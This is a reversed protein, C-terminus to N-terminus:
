EIRFESEPSDEYRVEDVKEKRGWGAYLRDPFNIVMGDRDGTNKYAHVIGPPIIVVHSDANEIVKKNKYTPLTDRNDWLYLKFKGHFFFYDTQEIHEHPGRAMGQYTISIYCMAPEIGSIIEDKRFLEALWGRSDSFPKVKKIIVGEIEGVKFM